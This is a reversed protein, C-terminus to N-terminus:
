VFSLRELDFIITNTDLSLDNIDTAWTVGNDYRRVGIANLFVINCNRFSMPSPIKLDSLLITDFDDVTPFGDINVVVHNPPLQSYFYALLRGFSYNNGAMEKSINVFVVDHLSARELFVYYSSEEGVGLYVYDDDAYIEGVGRIPLTYKGDDIIVERETFGYRVNDYLFVGLLDTTQYRENWGKSIKMTGDRYRRLITLSTADAYGYVMEARSLILRREQGECLYYLGRFRYLDGGPVPEIKDNEEMFNFRDNEKFIDRSTMIESKKTEKTVYMRELDKVVFMVYTKMLVITTFLHKPTAIIRRTFQREDIDYDLISGKQFFYIHDDDLVWNNRLLDTEPDDPHFEIITEWSKGTAFSITFTRSREFKSADFVYSRKKAAHFFKLLHNGVDLSIETAFSSM